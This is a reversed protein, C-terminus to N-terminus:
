EGPVHILTDLLTRYGSRDHLGAMDPHVKIWVYNRYGGGVAGRLLELAREPRERAGELLALGFTLDASGEGLSVAQRRAEEVRDTRGLRALGRALNVYNYAWEPNAEVVREVMGVYDRFRARATSDQGALARAVGAHYHAGYQLSDVALIGRFTEAAKGYRGGLRRAHGLRYRVVLRTSDLEVARRFARTAAEVSDAGLYAWGLQNWAQVATSDERLWRRATVLVSDVRGLSYLYVNNLQYRTLAGAGSKSLAARYKEVAERPRDMRELMWGLNHYPASRNPYLETLTRYYGAAEGPDEEVNDAYFGRIMLSEFESLGETNEIARELLEVGRQRDFHQFELEGLQARAGTFGSDLELAHRFLRRANERDGDLYHDQGESFLKLAELSSTTVDRLPRHYRDISKRAEGVLRRIGVALEDVADLLGERGDARVVETAVPEDDVAAFVAVDLQYEDGVASVRPVVAVPVGERRAVERAREGTVRATDPDLEMQRLTEKVDSAPHVALYPSQQLSTRLATSLSGTLIPDGTENQFEALVVADGESFALTEHPWLWWGLGVAAVIAVGLGLARGAWSPSPAGGGSEDSEDSEPASPGDESPTRRFGEPSVEYIWALAVVVPFGVAAGVVLVTLIWDPWGLARVM